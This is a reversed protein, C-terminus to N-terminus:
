SSKNLKKTSKSMAFLKLSSNFWQLPPTKKWGAFQIWGAKSIIKIEDQEILLQPLRYFFNSNLTISVEHGADNLVTHVGDIRKVAVGNLLLRPAYFYGPIRLELLQTKFDSHSITINM